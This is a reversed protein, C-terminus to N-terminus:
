RLKSMQKLQQNRKEKRHIRNLEDVFSNVLDFGKTVKHIANYVLHAFFTARRHDNVFDFMVHEPKVQTQEQQATAPVPFFPKQVPPQASVNKVAAPPPTSLPIAGGGSVNENVIKKSYLNNLDHLFSM